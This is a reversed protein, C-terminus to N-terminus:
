KLSFNCFLTLGLNMRMKNWLAKRWIMLRMIQIWKWTWRLMIMVMKKVQTHCCISTYHVNIHYFSSLVMKAALKCFRPVMWLMVTLQEWSNGAAKKNEAGMQDALSRKDWHRRCWAHQGIFCVPDM